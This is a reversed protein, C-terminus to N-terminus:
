PVRLHGVDPAGGDVDLVRPGTESSEDLVEVGLVVLVGLVAHVAPTQVVPLKALAELAVIELEVDVALVEVEVVTPQVLQQHGVRLLDDGQHVRHAGLVEHLAHQGLVLHRRVLAPAYLHPSVVELLRSRHSIQVRAVDVLQHRHPAHDGPDARHNRVQLRGIEPTGRALEMRRHRQYVASPDVFRRKTALAAVRHARLSQNVVEAM